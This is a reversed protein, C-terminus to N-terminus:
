VNEHYNRLEIHPLNNLKYYEDKLNKVVEERSLGFSSSIYHFHPQGDKWQEKRNISKFTVFFCHWNKERDLFKSVTVKRQDVVNKLQGDSLSTKGVKIVKDDKIEILKPLENKDVGRHHYHATYQSFKYGFDTWAKFILAILISPTIFQHKLLKIQEKKSKSELM